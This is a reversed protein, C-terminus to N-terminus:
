EVCIILRRAQNYELCYYCEGYGNNNINVQGLTNVNPM